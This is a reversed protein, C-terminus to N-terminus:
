KDEECIHSFIVKSLIFTNVFLDLFPKAKQNFRNIIRKTHLPPLTASHVPRSFRRHNIGDSLEFREEEALNGGAGGSFTYYLYSFLLSTSTM